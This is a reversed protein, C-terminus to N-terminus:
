NATKIKLLQKHLAKWPRLWPDNGSEAAWYGAESWLEELEAENVTIFGASRRAAIKSYVSMAVESRNTDSAMERLDVEDIVGQSIRVKISEM